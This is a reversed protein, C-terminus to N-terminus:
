NVNKGQSKIWQKIITEEVENRQEPSKELFEKIKKSRFAKTDVKLQKTEM